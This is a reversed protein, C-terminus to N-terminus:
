NSLNIYGSLMTFNTGFQINENTFIDKNQKITIIFIKDDEQITDNRGHYQYIDKISHIKCYIKHYYTKIRDNYESVIYLIDFDDINFSFINNLYVYKLGYEFIKSLIKRLNLQKLVIYRYCDFYKIADSYCMDIMNKGKILAVKGKIKELIINRIQQANDPIKYLKHITDFLNIVNNNRIDKDYIYLNDLIELGICLEIYMIINDDTISINIDDNMMFSALFNMVLIEINNTIDDSNKVYRIFVDKFKKYLVMYVTNDLQSSAKRKMGNKIVSLTVLNEYKTENTLRQVLYKKYRIVFNDTELDKILKEIVSLEEPIQDLRNISNGNNQCNGM